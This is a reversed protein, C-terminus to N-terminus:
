NLIINIKDYTLFTLKLMCDVRNWNIEFASLISTFDSCIINLGYELILHQYIYIYRFIRASVSVHITKLKLKEYGFLLIYRIFNINNVITILNINHVETNKYYFKYIKKIFTSDLKYRFFFFTYLYPKVM